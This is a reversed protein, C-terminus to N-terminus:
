PDFLAGQGTGGGQRALVTREHALLWRKADVGGAYGTLSGNAGVVRHCPIFISLPNRGNAAGVARCADPRGLAAAIQAYSRREGYPIRQLERWVEQQFETGELQLPTTFGRREGRFYEALEAAAQALVPYGMANSADDHAADKLAAHRHGPFYVGALAGDAAVLRLEGVPSAVLMQKLPQRLHKESQM